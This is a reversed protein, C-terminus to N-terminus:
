CLFKCFYPFVCACWVIIAVSFFILYIAVYKEFSIGPNIWHHHVALYSMASNALSTYDQTVLSSKGLSKGSNTTASFHSFVTQVHSVVQQAIDLAMSPPKSLTHTLWLMLRLRNIFIAVKEVQSKHSCPRM